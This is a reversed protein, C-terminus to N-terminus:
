RSHPTQRKLWDLIFDAIAQPSNIDLLPLDTDVAEDTALAIINDEGPFLFPRGLSPRNLEIRPLSSVHRFGEVLVLDLRDHDLKAYEEDLDPEQQPQREQILASRYKSTLLTQMAGAHHLKYSDKDPNDIEFDHHSHKIIGLRLGQEVLLPILRILLTTKGTGSYAAFGLRPTPLTSESM